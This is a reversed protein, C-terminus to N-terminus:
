KASSGIAPKTSRLFPPQQLAKSQTITKIAIFKNYEYNVIEFDWIWLEFTLCFGFDWHCFNPNKAQSKIPFKSKSM